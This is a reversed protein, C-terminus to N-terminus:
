EGKVSLITTLPDNVLWFHLHLLSVDDSISDPLFHVDSSTGWHRGWGRGQIKGQCHPQKYPCKLIKLLRLGSWFRPSPPIILQLLIGILCTLSLLIQRKEGLNGGATVFLLYSIRFIFNLKIEWCVSTFTSHAMHFIGSHKPSFLSKHEGLVMAGSFSRFKTLQPDKFGQCLLFGGHQRMRFRFM